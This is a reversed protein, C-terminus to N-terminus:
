LSHLTSFKQMHPEFAEFPSAGVRGGAGHWTVRRRQAERLQSSPLRALRSALKDCFSALALRASWVSSRWRVSRIRRTGPIEHNDRGGGLVGWGCVNQTSLKAHALMCRSCHCVPSRSRDHYQRQVIFRVVRVFQHSCCLTQNSINPTTSPENGFRKKRRRVAFGTLRFSNRFRSALQV